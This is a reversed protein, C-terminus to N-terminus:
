GVANWGVSWKGWTMMSDIKPVNNNPYANIIVNGLGDSIASLIPGDVVHEDALHDATDAAIVFAQLLASSDAPMGGGFTVSAFHSGPFAGFDVM